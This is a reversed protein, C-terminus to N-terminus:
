SMNIITMSIIIRKTNKKVDITSTKAALKKSESEIHETMKDISTKIEAKGFSHAHINPNGETDCWIKRKQKEKNSLSDKIEKTTDFYFEAQCKKFTENGFRLYNNDTGEGAKVEGLIYYMPEDGALDAELVDNKINVFTNVAFNTEAHNNLEFQDGVIGYNVARGLISNYNITSASDLTGEAKSIGDGGSVTFLSVAMIGAAALSIVRRFGKRMRM